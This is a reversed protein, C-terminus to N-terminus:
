GLTLPLVVWRVNYGNDAFQGEVRWRDTPNGQDDLMVLEDGRKPVNSKALTAISRTFLSEGDNHKEYVEVGHEINVKEITPAGRLLADRGLLSRVSTMARAFPDRM